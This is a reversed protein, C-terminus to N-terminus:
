VGETSKWRLRRCLSNEEYNAALCIEMEKFIIIEKERDSEARGIFLIVLISQTAIPCFSWVSLKRNKEHSSAKNNMLRVAGSYFIPISYIELSLFTQLRKKKNETAPSIFNIWM